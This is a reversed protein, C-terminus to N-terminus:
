EDRLSDLFRGAQLFGARKAEAVEAAEEDAGWQAIQWDEDVRSAAWLEELPRAGDFGALGIVMSGSLSVLDHMATLEFPTMQGLPAALKALAAPDQAVHMVGEVPILRARYTQAAWDLLPDWIEVQRAVLGAPSAARYCTVDSDGYESLLAVVEDFQATVKDIAANVARTVPMTKPDVLDKQARWEAAAAEALARTPMYFPAKAPTKVARGDLRVTYGADVPEVTAESWFRKPAWDSM